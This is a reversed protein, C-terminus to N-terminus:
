QRTAGSNQQMIEVLDHATIPGEFKHHFRGDPHIVFTTPLVRVPGYGTEPDQGYGLIPYTVGLRTIFARIAEIDTDEFTVGWLDAQDRRTQHFQQLEPMEAVCPACWTAWFNIVLWKGISDSARYEVGDLDRLVYDFQETEAAKLPILVMALVIVFVFKRCRWASVFDQGGLREGALTIILRLAKLWGGHM